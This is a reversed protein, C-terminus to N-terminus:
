TFVYSSFGLERLGRGVGHRKGCSGAAIGTVWLLVASGLGCPGGGVQSHRCRRSYLLAERYKFVFPFAFLIFLVLFLLM